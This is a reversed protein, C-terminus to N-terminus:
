AGPPTVLVLDLPDLGDRTRLEPLDFGDLAAAEMAVKAQALATGVSQASAIAAYFARAFVVADTDYIKDSMGIVAPVTRLLDDAGALSECANMVVLRPPDDTAGLVRAIVDFTVDHGDETGDDNDMLLGWENAHGSFHVIHPRHDNLGEILDGVTAAGAHEVEVLDRYKAGRLAQKVQRVEVDVRLWTGYEHKTGDPDTVTEEIAEPNATLYLVRLKEPEPPRVEIFRTQPVPTSLRGVERAHTKEDRRRRDDAQKQRRTAAASESAVASDLSKRKTAIAKDATAFTTRAKAVKADAAVAKKEAEASARMASKIIQASATKKNAREAQKRATDRASSAAKGHKAIDDSADAKQKELRAIESRLSDSRAM